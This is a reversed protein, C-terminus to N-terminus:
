RGLGEFRDLVPVQAVDDADAAHQGTGALTVQVDVHLFGAQQGFRQTRQRVLEVAQGIGLGAVALAVDVQDDVLLHALGEAHAGLHDGVDAVEEVVATEEFHFGRHQLGDGTTGRGLRELGVM